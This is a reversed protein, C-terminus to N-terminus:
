QLLIIKDLKLVPIIKEDTLNLLAYSPSYKSSFFIKNRSM